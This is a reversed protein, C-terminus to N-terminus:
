LYICFLVSVSVIYRAAKWVRDKQFSDKGYKYHWTFKYNSHRHVWQQKYNMEGMRDGTEVTYSTLSGFAEFEGMLLEYPDGRRTASRLYILFMIPMLREISSHDSNDM